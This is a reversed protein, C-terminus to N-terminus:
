SIRKNQELLVCHTFAYTVTSGSLLACSHVLLLGCNATVNLIRLRYVCDIILLGLRKLIQIIPRSGKLQM